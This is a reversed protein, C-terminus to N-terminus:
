KKRNGTFTGEGLDGLKVTGKMTDKDVTGKYEIKLQTGQADADFGFTIDNGKITGVVKAKGFTGEYDGELKEGDQRFTFTPTGSGAATEVNLLWTGAVDAPKTDQAIVPAVFCAAVTLLIVALTKM